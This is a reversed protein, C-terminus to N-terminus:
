EKESEKVMDLFKAFTKIMFGLMVSLFTVVILIVALADFFPKDLKLMMAGILSCLGLMMSIHGKSISANIMSVSTFKGSKRLTYLVRAAIILVILMSILLTFNLKQFIDNAIAFYVGLAALLEGIIGMIEYMRQFNKDM